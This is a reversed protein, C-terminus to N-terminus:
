TTEFGIVSATDSALKDKSNWGIISFAEVTVKSSDEASPVWRIEDSPSILRRELLALLEFPNSSTPADSVNHYSDGIKKEIHGNAVMTVVFLEEGATAGYSAAQVLDSHVLRIHSPGIAGERNLTIKSSRHLKPRQRRPDNNEVYLEIPKTGKNGPDSREYPKITAYTTSRVREGQENTTWLQLKPFNPSQPLQWDGSDKREHTFQPQSKPLIRAISAPYQLNQRAEIDWRDFTNIAGVFFDFNPTNPAVTPGFGRIEAGIDVSSALYVSNMFPGSSERAFSPVYVNTVTTTAWKNTWTWEPSPVIRMASLGYGNSAKNVARHVYVRNANSVTPGDNIFGYAYGVANGANGQLVTNCTAEIFNAQIKVSDDNAHIFSNNIESHWASIGPGDAQDVWGGAQKYDYLRAKSHLFKFRTDTPAIDIELEGSVDQVLATHNFDQLLVPGYGRYAPWGVTVGSVDVAWDNPDNDTTQYVSSATLMDSNIYYTAHNRADSKNTYSEVIDYGDIRGNGRVVVKRDTALTKIIYDDAPLGVPLNTQYSGAAAANATNVINEATTKDMGGWIAMRSSLNNAKNGAVVDLNGTVLVDVGSTDLDTQLTSTANLNNTLMYNALGGVYAVAYTSQNAEKFVRWGTQWTSDLTSADIQHTQLSSPTNAAQPDAIFVQAQRSGFGRVTGDDAPTISIQFPVGALRGGGDVPNTSSSNLTDFKNLAITQSGDSQKEMQFSENGITVHIVDPLAPKGSAAAVVLTYNDYFNTQAPDLDTFQHTELYNFEGNKTISPTASAGNGVPLGLLESTPNISIVVDKAWVEDSAVALRLTKSAGREDRLILTEPTSSDWLASIDASVVIRDGEAYNFDFFTVEGFLDNTDFVVIDAGSGLEVISGGRGPAVVDDGAGSSVTLRGHFTADTSGGHGPGIIVDNFASGYVLDIGGALSIYTAFSDPLVQQDNILGPLEGLTPGGVSLESANSLMATESAINAASLTNSSTNEQPFLVATGSTTISYQSQYDNDSLTDIYHIGSLPQDANLAYWGESPYLEGSAPHEGIVNVFNTPLHVNLLQFEQGSFTELFTQSNIQPVLMNPDKNGVMPNAANAYGVGYSTWLPSADYSMAMLARLGVALDNIITDYAAQDTAMDIQGLALILSDAFESYFINIADQNTIDNNYYYGQLKTCVLEYTNYNSGQDAPNTPNHFVDYFPNTPQAPDNILSALNEIGSIESFIDIPSQQTQFGTAYKEQLNWLVDVPMAASSPPRNDNTFSFFQSLTPVYDSLSSVPTGLDPDASIFSGHTRNFVALAPVQGASVAPNPPLLSDGQFPFGVIRTLGQLAKDSVTFEYGVPIHPSDTLEGAIAGAINGNGGRQAALGTTGTSPFRKNLVLLSYLNDSSGVWANEIAPKYLSAERLDKGNSPDYYFCAVLDDSVEAVSGAALHGYFDEATKIVGKANENIENFHGNQDATWNNRQGSGQIQTTGDPLTWMWPASYSNPTNPTNIIQTRNNLLSIDFDISDATLM